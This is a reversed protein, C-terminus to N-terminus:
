CFVQFTAPKSKNEGNRSFDWANVVAIQDGFTAVARQTPVVDTRETTVTALAVFALAGLFMFSPLADSM